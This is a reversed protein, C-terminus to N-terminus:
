PVALKSTFVCSGNRVSVLYIGPSGSGPIRQIGNLVERQRYVIRGTLDSLVIEAQTLQMEPLDLYISGGSVFVRNRNQVAPIETNGLPGKFHLLFRNGADGGPHTFTYASNGALDIVRKLVRDELFIATGPSFSELGSVSLTVEDAGKMVFHLPVTRDENGKPLCNISLRTGDASESSFGPAEEGGTLKNADFAADFYETADERFHIVLEDGARSASALVQMRLLDRVPEGQKWFAGISHIRTADTMALVPSPGTAQVFFAQGAPIFRSGSNIGTIGNWVAYNGSSYSTGSPWCYFTGAVDHRTWGDANWDIPSPYPNPVLNYGDGTHTVLASFPGANLNGSFTYTRSEGPYYIMYGRSEDLQINEASGYAYWDSGPEDYHFLYSGSFLGSLSNSSPALPVSVFHYMMANLDPSGSIYRQITAQVGQGSHILSGTGEAISRILLAAPDSNTLTGTVTLSKGPDITLSGGSELILNQCIKLIGDVTISHPSRISVQDAESPQATAPAWDSTGNPSFEWNGPLGWSGSGASRFYGASGSPTLLTVTPVTGDTKYDIASGSNSYPWISFTYSAAPNLGSFTCEPTGYPINRALTGDSEPIHDAPPLPSSGEAARILYKLPLPSGGADNWVLKVTGSSAASATFDSVHNQPEAYDTVFNGSLSLSNTTVGAAYRGISFSATGSTGGWAYLRFTVPHAATINQLDSIGSLVVQPQDEGDATSTFSVDSGIETFPSGKLSYAWMYTNPASTGSRRLRANLTSLSILYGAKPSVVFQVYENNTMASARTAGSEWASSAYSRALATSNVGAGRSLTGTELAAHTTTSNYSTENGLSAPNGFQWALLVLDSITFTNSTAPSLLLSHATLTLGTGSISHIVASFSAIGSVATAQLPSGTLTGTSTLSIVSQDDLDTNGNQDIAKVTVAPIMASGSATNTPQQIFSLQSAAVEIRNDNGSLSTGAGGANGAAFGSGGTSAEATSVIFGFQQNDTQVSAFSVRVSFEAESDDAANISLGSFGTSATAAAEALHTNGSFLAVRNLCEPHSLSLSLATLTTGYGDGDPSGGGDRLSFRAVELSNSATLPGNSSYALYDINSPYLFGPSSIIDSAASNAPAVTLSVSSGNIWRVTTGAATAQHPILYLVLSTGAAVTVSGSFTFTTQTGSATVSQGSTGFVAPSGGNNKTKVTFNCSNASGSLQTIWTLSNLTFSHLVDASITVSYYANAAFGADASASNFGSGNLANSATACNVGSGREWNTFTIGEPPTTWVATPTAPCTISTGGGVTVTTQASLRGCLFVLFFVCTTAKGCAPICTRRM